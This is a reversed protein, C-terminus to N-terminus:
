ALGGKREIWEDRLISYVFADHSHGNQFLYGRLKGEQAFGIKKLLSNSATNAPFAVAGIRYLDLVEFSYRLVENIAETTIGKRWQDPDLEFGIEAKKGKVNLNNLGITGIFEDSPHLVMGWRICREAEFLQQFSDIIAKAQEVSELSEMGYFETVDDNSMIDYFNQDFQHDIHILNLRNTELVPFERM